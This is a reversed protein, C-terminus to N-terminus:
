AMIYEPTCMPRPWLVGPFLRAQAAKVGHLPSLSTIQVAKYYPGLTNELFHTIPQVVIPQVSRTWIVCKCTYKAPNDYIIM